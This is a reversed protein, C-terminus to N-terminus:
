SGWGGRRQWRPAVTPLTHPLEGDDPREYPPVDERPARQRPGLLGLERCRTVYGRTLKGAAEGDGREIAREISDLWSRVIRYRNGRM